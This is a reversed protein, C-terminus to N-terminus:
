FKGKFFVNLHSFAKKFTTYFQEEYVDEFLLWKNPTVYECVCKFLM